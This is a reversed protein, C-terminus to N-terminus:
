PLPEVITYDLFVAELSVNGAFPRVTELFLWYTNNANDVVPDFISSDTRVQLGSFGSSTVQAQTESVTNDFHDLRRLSLTASNTSSTDNFQARLKTVRAGHPLQIPAAARVPAGPPQLLDPEIYPAIDPNLFVTGGLTASFACGSVSLYRTTEPITISSPPVALLVLPLGLLAQSRLKM